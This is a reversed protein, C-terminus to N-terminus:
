QLQTKEFRESAGFRSTRSIDLQEFWEMISMLPFTMLLEFLPRLRAFCCKRVSPHQSVPLFAKWAHWDEHSIKPYPITTTQAQGGIMADLRYNEVFM